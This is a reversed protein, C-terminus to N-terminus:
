YLCSAALKIKCKDSNTPFISLFGFDSLISLLYLFLSCPFFISQSQTSYDCSLLYLYYSGRVKVILFPSFEPLIASLLYEGNKFIFLTKCSTQTQVHIDHLARIFEEIFIIKFFLVVNKHMCVTVWNGNKKLLFSGDLYTLKMESGFPCYLLQLM